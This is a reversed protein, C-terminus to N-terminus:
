APRLEGVDRQDEIKDVGSFCSAAGHYAYIPLSLALMISLGLIMKSMLIPAAIFGVAIRLSIHCEQNIAVRWLYSAMITVLSLDLLGFAFLGTYESDFQKGM